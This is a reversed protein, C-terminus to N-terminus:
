TLEQKQLNLDTLEGEVACLQVSGRVHASLADDAINLTLRPTVAKIRSFSSHGSVDYFV